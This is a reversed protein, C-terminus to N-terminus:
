IQLTIPLYCTNFLKTNNNDIKKKKKKKPEVVTSRRRDVNSSKVFQYGHSEYVYIVQLFM